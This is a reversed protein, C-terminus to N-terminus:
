ITMISSIFGYVEGVKYRRKVPKDYKPLEMVEERRAWRITDLRNEEKLLMAWRAKEVSTLIAGVSGALRRTAESQKGGTNKTLDLNKLTMKPPTLATKTNM